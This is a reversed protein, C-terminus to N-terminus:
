SCFQNYGLNYGQEIDNVNICIEFILNNFQMNKVSKFYM